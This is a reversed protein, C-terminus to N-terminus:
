GNNLMIDTIPVYSDFYSPPAKRQATVGLGELIGPVVSVM